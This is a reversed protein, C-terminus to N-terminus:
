SFERNVMSLTLNYVIQIRIFISIVRPRLYIPLCFPKNENLFYLISERTNFTMKRVINDLVLSYQPSTTIYWITLYFLPAFHRLQGSKERVENNTWPVELYAAVAGCANALYSAM